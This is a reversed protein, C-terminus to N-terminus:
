PASALRASVVIDNLQEFVTINEPLRSDCQAQELETALARLDDFLRDTSPAGHVADVRQHEAARKAEILDPVYAPGYGLERLVTLDAVAEGTRM